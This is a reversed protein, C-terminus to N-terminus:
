EKPPHWGVKAWRRRAKVILDRNMNLAAVTARGVPTIGAILGGDQSWQFHDCWTQARPNFLPVVKGSIPDSADTKTGKAQNCDSCALCLNAEESNGGAHLPRIHDIELANGIVDVRTQCYSCRCRAWVAVRQRMALAIYPRNM